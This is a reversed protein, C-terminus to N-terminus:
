QKNEICRTFYFIYQFYSSFIIVFAIWLIPLPTVTKLVYKCFSNTIYHMNGYIFLEYTNLVAKAKYVAKGSLPNFTKEYWTDVPLM